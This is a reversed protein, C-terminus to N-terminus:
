SPHSIEYNETKLTGPNGAGSELGLLKQKVRLVAREADANALGSRDGAPSGDGLRTPGAGAAAGGGQRRALSAPTLAWRYLPDHILVEVITVLAEKHARLVRLVEECCRRM